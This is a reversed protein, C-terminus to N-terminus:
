LIVVVPPGRVPNCGAAGHKEQWTGGFHVMLGRVDLDIDTDDRADTKHHMNGCGVRAARCDSFSV